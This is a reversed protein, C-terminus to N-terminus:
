RFAVELAERLPPVQIAQEQLLRLFKQQHCLLRLRLFLDQFPLPPLYSALSRLMYDEALRGLVTPM